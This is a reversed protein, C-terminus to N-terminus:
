LQWQPLRLTSPQHLHLLHWHPPLGPLLDDHGRDGWVGGNNWDGFLVPQILSLLHCLFDCKNLNFIYKDLNSLKNTWVKFHEPKWFSVIGSPFGPSSSHSPSPFSFQTREEKDRLLAPCPSEIARSNYKYPCCFTNKWHKLHIQGFYLILRPLSVRHSKDLNFQFSRLKLSM